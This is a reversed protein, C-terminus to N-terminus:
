QTGLARFEGPPDLSCRKVFAADALGGEVWERIDPLAAAAVGGKSSMFIVVVGEIENNSRVAAHYGESFIMKAFALKRDDSAMDSILGRPQVYVFLARKGKLRAWDGSFQSVEEHSVVFGLDPHSSPKAQPASALDQPKSTAPPVNLEASRLWGTSDGALRVQTWDGQQSIVEFEDEAQARFLVPGGDNTRTMVGAGSRKVAAFAPAPAPSPAAAELAKIQSQMATIQEQVVQRKALIADLEDPSAVSPNSVKITPETADASTAPMSVSSHAQASAAADAQPGSSGDGGAAPRPTVGGPATLKAIRQALADQLRDLLDAELRGNSPLSRYGSHGQSDSYWASIRAEVRVVTHGADVNKLEIRYQFYPRVYRGAQATEPVAFGDVFPLREGAFANMAELTSKVRALACPYTRETLPSTAVQAFAPVAFLILLAHGAFSSPRWSASRM